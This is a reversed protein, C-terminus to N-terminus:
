NVQRSPWCSRLRFWRPVAKAYHRYADGHIAELAQEEARAQRVIVVCGTILCVLSFVSPLALFFGLQGLMIACFLPNRSLHFPGGRILGTRREYDIGSRWDQHMYAQVFDILFFSVLLLVTGAVLVVPHYLTSFVGLYPDIDFGVRVWCIGLIAARFVNFLHRHWWTASGRRGYHIHSFRLREYLGLSRSTYHLGILLFYVALFHRTFVDVSSM